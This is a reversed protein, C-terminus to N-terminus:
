TPETCIKEGSPNDYSFTVYVHKDIYRTYILLMCNFLESISSVYLTFVNVLLLRLFVKTCSFSYRHIFIANCALLQCVSPSPPVSLPLPLFSLSPVFTGSSLPSSPQHERWGTRRASTGRAATMPTHLEACM